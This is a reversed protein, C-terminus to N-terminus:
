GNAKEAILNEVKNEPVVNSGKEIRAIIDEDNLIKYESGDVPDIILKGAYKSYFVYDGVEAWPMGTFDDSFARWAQKGYLVLIGMQIGAKELREDVGGYIIGGASKTEVEKPKIIVKHGNPIIM